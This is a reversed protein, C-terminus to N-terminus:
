YWWWKLWLGLEKLIIHVSERRRTITIRCVLGVNSRQRVSLTIYLHKKTIVFNGFSDPDDYNNEGHDNDGETDNFKGAHSFDLFSQLLDDIFCIDFDFKGLLHAKEGPM